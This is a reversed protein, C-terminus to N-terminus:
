SFICSPIHLACVTHEFYVLQNTAQIDLWGISRLSARILSIEGWTSKKKKNNNNKEPPIQVNKYEQM